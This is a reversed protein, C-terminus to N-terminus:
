HVQNQVSIGSLAEGAEDVHINVVALDGLALMGVLKNGEVVPLRRIQESSMLRSAEHADTEPSCTVPNKTMTQSVTMTNCDGNTAVCKVIIDRDTIIGVLNPGEVVPISGVDEQKMMRAADSCTTNPSCSVVQATMLDRVKM